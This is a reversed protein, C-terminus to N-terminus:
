TSSLRFGGEGGEGQLMEVIHILGLDVKFMM